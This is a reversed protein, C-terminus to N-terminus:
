KETPSQVVSNEVPSSLIVSTVLSGYPTLRKILKELSEISPVAVKLIYCDNGTICHCELVDPINQIAKVVHGYDTGTVTLRMFALIPLGVQRPNVRAQYGTIADIEELRRIREIVTPRSLGVSRSLEAYSLRANQQLLKLIQWDKDDLSNDIQLVM